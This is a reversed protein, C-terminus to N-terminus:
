HMNIGASAHTVYELRNWRLEVVKCHLQLGTPAHAWYRRRDLAVHIQGSGQINQTAMAIGHQAWINAARSMETGSCHPIATKSDISGVTLFTESGLGHSSNKLSFELLPQRNATLLIYFYILYEQRSATLPLLDINKCSQITQAQNCARSSTTSRGAPTKKGCFHRGQFNQVHRKYNRTNKTLKQLQNLPLFYESINLALPLRKTNTGLRSSCIQNNKTLHNACGIIDLITQYLGGEAMRVSAPCVVTKAGYGWCATACVLVPTPRILIPDILNNCINVSITDAGCSTISTPPSKLCKAM